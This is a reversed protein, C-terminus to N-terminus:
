SGQLGQLAAWRPDPAVAESSWTVPGPCDAGCRTVQPLRLSLQEFIWREPDFHGLPDLRDDLDEGNPLIPGNFSPSGRGLPNAPTASPLQEGPLESNLELIEKAEAELPHNFHGLCRDCRLTVITAVQGEVELVTGHHVARLEGRVPTLSELGAIAQDVEWHHGAAQLRLEPLAVPRLPQPVPGTAQAHTM